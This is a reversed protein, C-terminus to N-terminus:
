TLLDKFNLMHDEPLDKAVTKGIILDIKMKDCNILEHCLENTIDYVNKM